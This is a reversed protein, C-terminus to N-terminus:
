LGHETVLSAVVILLAHVGCSCRLGGDGCGAFLGHLISSGACGFNIFLIIKKFVM